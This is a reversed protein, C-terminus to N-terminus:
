DGDDRAVDEARFQAGILCALPMYLFYNRWGYLALLLRTWDFEAAGLQVSALVLGLAGALVCVTMFGSRRPWLGHWTALFYAYLLFPDRIFFVYFSWQPLLWKRVSGEFILLLYILMVVGVLRRRAREQARAGAAPVPRRAARPVAISGAEVNSAM